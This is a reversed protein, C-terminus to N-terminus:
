TELHKHKQQNDNYCEPESLFQILLKACSAPIQEGGHDILKICTQTSYGVLEPPSANHSTHLKLAM